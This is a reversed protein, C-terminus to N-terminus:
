RGPKTALILPSAGNAEVPRANEFGAQDLWTKIEGFSFTDGHETNVLMNVAFILAPPPGTREENVIFDAIAITGDPALADFTKRLLTRSRKEGESHLIHGLVAINHGGGFDAELVDGAVYHFQEELGFRQAVRRTVPLVDAFDIATVRVHSSKQAMAIGWVGSGAGLDLVHVPEKSQSIELVESLAQAAPYSVPFLGEVFESFFRGGDKERNVAAVPRGTRVVESM